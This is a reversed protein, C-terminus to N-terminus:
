QLAPVTGKWGRLRYVNFNHAPKGSRLIKISKVLEAQQYYIKYRPLLLIEDSPIICFAEDMSVSDKRVANMWAYYHISTVPGLGIM